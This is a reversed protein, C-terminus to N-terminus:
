KAPQRKMTYIVDNLGFIITDNDAMHFDMEIDADGRMCAFDLNVIKESKFGLAKAHQEPNDQDFAGQFLYGPEVTKIEYHAECNFPSPASLRDKTFVFIAHAFKPDVAPKYSADPKAWPAIQADVVKWSGAFVGQAAAPLALGCLLWLGLVASRFM